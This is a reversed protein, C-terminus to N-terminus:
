KLNLQEYLENADKSDWGFNETITKAKRAYIGAQKKDGIKIYLKALIVNGDYTDQLELARKTFLIANQLDTKSSINKVYVQAIEKLTKQDKWLFKEVSENAAKAYSKWNQTREAIMLDYSFILSDTKRINIAKADARYKKYNITDLRDTFPQLLEQVANIIKREVREPSAVKGFIEQNAVVYKFERSNIDTVANAFIKWNVPSALQAETQTALYQHAPESIYIRDKGKRLTIIYALCKDANSPDKEFEEKLFPLQKKPDLANKAEKLLDETKMEGTLNYLLTGNENLFVFSPFSRMGFANKFKIGDPTDIDIAFCVFNQELFSIVNPDTFVEAKMKKCHPCWNAYAMYFIPKGTQKSKNLSEVFGGENFQLANQSFSPLSFIFLLTLIFHKM